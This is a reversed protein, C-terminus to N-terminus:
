QLFLVLYLFIQLFKLFNRNDLNKISKIYDLDGREADDYILIIEINKYTQKLVSNIANIADNANNYIPLFSGERFM